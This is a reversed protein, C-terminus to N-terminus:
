MSVYWQINNRTHELKNIQVYSDYAIGAEIATSYYGIKVTTNNVGIAAKWRKKSKSFSAGRYGSINNSSLKKTNRSQTNKNAWRCNSPEYNGSSDIRDITLGEEFSPYMDEIFNSIDLWRTCVQIGNAGYHKYSVHKINTTRALMSSWTPYLRHKSLGHNKEGIYKRLHLCGCSKTKGFKVKATDARFEKKCICMYIGLRTKRNSKETMFQMGLDQLLKPYEM